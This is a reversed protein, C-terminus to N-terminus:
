ATPHPVPPPLPTDAEVTKCYRTERRTSVITGDASAPDKKRISAVGSQDLAYQVGEAHVLDCQFCERAGEPNVIYFQNEGICLSLRGNSSLIAPMGNITMKAGEHKPTTIREYDRDIYDAELAEIFKARLATMREDVAPAEAPKYRDKWEPIKLQGDTLKGVLVSVAEYIENFHAGGCDKGSDNIVYYVRGDDDVEISISTGVTTSEKAMESFYQKQKEDLGALFPIHMIEMGSVGKAKLPENM